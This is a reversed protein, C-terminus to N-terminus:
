LLMQRLKAEQEFKIRKAFPSFLLLEMERRSAGKGRGTETKGACFDSKGQLVTIGEGHARKETHETLM